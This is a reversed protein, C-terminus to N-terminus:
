GWGIMRGYVLRPNIRAYDAPGLAFPAPGIGGFEVLRTGSLPGMSVPQRDVM